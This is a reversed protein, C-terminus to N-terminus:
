TIWLIEGELPLWCPPVTTWIVPVNVSSLPLTRRNLSTVQTKPLIETLAILIVAVVTVQMVGDWVNGNLIHVFGNSWEVMKQFTSCKAHKVHQTKKWIGSEEWNLDSNSILPLKPSCVTQAKDIVTSFLKRKKTETIIHVFNESRLSSTGRQISQLCNAAVHELQKACDSHPSQREVKWHVVLLLQETPQDCTQGPWMIKSEKEKTEYYIGEEDNILKLIKDNSNNSSVKKNNEM